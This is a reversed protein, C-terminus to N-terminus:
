SQQADDLVEKIQWGFVVDTLAIRVTAPKCKLFDAVEKVTDFHRTEGTTTNKVVLNRKPWRSPTKM